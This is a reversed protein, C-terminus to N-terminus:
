ALFLQYYCAAFACLHLVLLVSGWVPRRSFLGIVSLACGLGSVLTGGPPFWAVCALSFCAVVAAGCLAGVLISQEAGYIPGELANGQIATIAGAGVQTTAGKAAGAGSASRDASSDVDDVNTDAGRPAFPSGHRIPQDSM